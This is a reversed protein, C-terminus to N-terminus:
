LKIKITTRKDGHYAEFNDAGDKGYGLIVRYTKGAELPRDKTDGSDLKIRFSIETKGNSESGSPKGIDLSGGIGADAQHQTPASGFDDRIFVEGTQVYGIIINANKMKGAPNFGVSVWGTTPASVSVYLWEGEVKWKLDMGIASTVWFGNEDKQQAQAGALAAILVLMLAAFVIRNGRSM